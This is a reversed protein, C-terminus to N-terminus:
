AKRRLARGIGLLGLGLLAITSPEPVLTLTFSANINDQVLWDSNFGSSPKAFISADGVVGHLNSDIPSLIGNNQIGLGGPDALVSLGFAGNPSQGSGPAATAILAIDNVADSFWFDDAEGVGLKTVLTQTGLATVAAAATSAFSLATQALSTREYLNAFVGAGLAGTPAFILRVLDQGIVIDPLDTISFIALQAYANLQYPFGLTDSIAAGNADQFRAITEIVDGTAFTGSTIAVSGRLVREASTDQVNNIGPVWLANIAGAQTVQPSVALAAFVATALVSRFKTIMKM